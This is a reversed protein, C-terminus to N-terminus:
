SVRRGPEGTRYTIVIERGPDPM